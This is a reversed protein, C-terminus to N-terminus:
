HSSPIPVPNSFPDGGTAKAESGVPIQYVETKVYRDVAQNMLKFDIRVTHKTQNQLKDSNLNQYLQFMFFIESVILIVFVINLLLAIVGGINIKKPLINM